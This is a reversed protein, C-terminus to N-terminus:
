NLLVVLIFGFTQIELTSINLSEIQGYSMIYMCVIWKLTISSYWYDM